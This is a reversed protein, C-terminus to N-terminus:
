FGTDEDREREAEIELLAQMDLVFLVTAQNICIHPISLITM